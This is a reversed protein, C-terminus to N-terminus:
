FKAENGVCVRMVIAKTALNPFVFMEFKCILIELSDPKSIAQVYEGQGAYELHHRTSSSRHEICLPVIEKCRPLFLTLVIEM